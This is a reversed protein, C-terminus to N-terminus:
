GGSRCESGRPFAHHQQTKAQLGQRVPARGCQQGNEREGDADGEEEPDLADSGAGARTERIGDGAGVQDNAGATAAYLQQKIRNEPDAVGGVVNGPFAVAVDGVPRFHGPGHRDGKAVAMAPKADHACGIGIELMVPKAAVSGQDKGLAFAEVIKEVGDEAGIDSGIEAVLDAIRNDHRVAESRDTEGFM